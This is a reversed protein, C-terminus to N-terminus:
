DNIVLTGNSYIAMINKNKHYNYFKRNNTFHYRILERGYPMDLSMLDDYTILDLDDFDKVVGQWILNSFHESNAKIENEYLNLLFVPHTFIDYLKYGSENLTLISSNGNKLFPSIYKDDNIIPNDIIPRNIFRTKRLTSLLPKKLLTLHSPLHAKVLRYGKLTSVFYTANLFVRGCKAEFLRDYVYGERLALYQLYRSLMSSELVSICNKGSLAATIDFYIKDYLYVDSKHPLPFIEKQTNIFKVRLNRSTDFTFKATIPYENSKDLKLAEEAIRQISFYSLLFFDNEKSVFNLTRKDIIYQADPKSESIGLMDNGKFANITIIDQRNSEVDGFNIYGCINM